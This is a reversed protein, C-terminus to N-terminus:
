SLKSLQAYLNFFSNCIPLQCFISKQQPSFYNLIEIKNQDASHLIENHM